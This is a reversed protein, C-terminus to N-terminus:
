IVRKYGNQQLNLLLKGQLSNWPSHLM